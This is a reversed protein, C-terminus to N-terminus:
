GIAVALLVILAVVIYLCYVRFDGRQLLQLRAGADQVGRGIPTLLWRDWLQEAAAAGAPIAAFWPRTAALQADAWSRVGYLPRFLVKVPESFSGASVSMRADPAYGCAWVEVGVRRPPRRGAYLGAIILPVAALGILLVAVLPTSVEGIAPDNPFVAIGKAVEIGHGTLSAAVRAMVPAVIPAGIGLLISCAALLGMGALMPWRVERAASASASRPQGSFTVGFAKVFTM